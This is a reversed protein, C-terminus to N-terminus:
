AQINQRNEWHQKRTKDWEPGHDVDSDERLPHLILNNPALRHKGMPLEALVGNPNQGVHHLEFKQGTRKDIPADGDALRQRNTRGDATVYDLDINPNLLYWKGNIEYAKLGESKYIEYEEWSSIENIVEDPWDTEEKIRAKEEESLGKPTENGDDINETQKGNEPSAEEKAKGSEEPKSEEKAKSSEEPKTEEKAKGSEEPKAEEKAKGSEEPSAEEKAKGSEEPKAEEKAKSSEEPKTEEKAKGSEEPKAEEKAKGYEKPSTSRFDIERTDKPSNIDFFTPVDRGKDKVEKSLNELNEQNKAALEASNTQVAERAQSSIIEEYNTETATSQEVTNRNIEPSSTETTYKNAEISFATGSM